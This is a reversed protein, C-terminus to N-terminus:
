SRRLRKRSPLHRGTSTPPNVIMDIGFDAPVEATAEALMKAWEAPDLGTAENLAAVKALFAEHLKFYDVLLAAPPHRGARFYAETQSAAADVKHLLEYVEARLKDADTEM